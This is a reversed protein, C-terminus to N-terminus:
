FGAIDLAAVFKSAASVPLLAACLGQSRRRACVILLSM